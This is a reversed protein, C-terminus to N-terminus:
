GALLVGEEALAKGELEAALEEVQEVAGVEIGRVQDGEGGGADGSGRGGDVAGGGGRALHLERQLKEPLGKEARVKRSDGCGCTLCRRIFDCINGARSRNIKGNEGAGPPFKQEAGYLLFLLFLPMRPGALLIAPGRQRAGPM